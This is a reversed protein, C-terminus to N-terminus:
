QNKGQAAVLASRFEVNSWTRPNYVFYAHSGQAAMLAVCGENGELTDQKKQIILLRSLLPSFLGLLISKFQQNTSSDCPFLKHCRHSSHAGTHNQFIIMIIVPM